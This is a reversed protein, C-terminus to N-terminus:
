EIELFPGEVVGLDFRWIAGGDAIGVGANITILGARLLELGIDVEAEGVRMAVDEVLPALIDHDIARSGIGIMAGEKGDLRFGALAMVLWGHDVVGFGPGAGARFDQTAAM